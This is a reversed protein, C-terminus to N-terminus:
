VKTEWKEKNEGGHKARPEAGGKRNKGGRSLFLVKSEKRKGIGTKVGKMINPEKLQFLEITHRKQLRRETERNHERKCGGGKGKEEWKGRMQNRMSVGVQEAGDSFKRGQERPSMAKWQRKQRGHCNKLTVNGWREIHGKREKNFKALLRSTGSGEGGKRQCGKTETKKDSQTETEKNEKKKPRRFGKRGGGGQGKV